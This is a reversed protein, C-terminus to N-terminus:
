VTSTTPVTATHVLQQLAHKTNTTVAAIRQDISSIAYSSRTSDLEVGTHASYNMM